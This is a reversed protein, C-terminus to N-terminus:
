DVKTGRVLGVLSAFHVCASRAGSTMRRDGGPRRGAERGTERNGKKITKNTKSFIKSFWSHFRVIKSVIGVVVFFVFCVFLKQM